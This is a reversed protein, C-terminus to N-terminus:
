GEDKASRGATHQAEVRGSLTQVHRFESNIFWWKHNVVTTVGNGLIDNVLQFLHDGGTAWSICGRREHCLAGEHGRVHDGPHACLREPSLHFGHCRREYVIGRDHLARHSTSWQGHVAPRGNRDWRQDNVTAGSM